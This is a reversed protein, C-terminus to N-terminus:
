SKNRCLRYTQKKQDSVSTYESSCQVLEPHTCCIPKDVIIIVSDHQIIQRYEQISLDGHFKKIMYHPAPAPIIPKTYSYAEGYLDNLLHYHEFKTSQDLTQNFLYGAACEPCCFSGYVQYQGQIISKPIYVPPTDYPFTCWFCDSRGSIDNTHLRVSLNKLKQHITDASYTNLEVQCTDDSSYPEVCTTNYKVQAIDSCTCKLHLIINQIPVSLLEGPIGVNNMVRGGKPKRGRKTKVGDAM